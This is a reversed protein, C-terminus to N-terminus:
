VDDSLEYSYHGFKRTRVASPCSWFDVEPYSDVKVYFFVLFEELLRQLQRLFQWISSTSIIDLVGRRSDVEPDFYVNVYFIFYVKGSAETSTQGASVARATDDGAFGTLCLGSCVDAVLVAEADRFLQGESGYRSHHRAGQAKRRTFFRPRRWPPVQSDARGACCPCRGGFVSGSSRFRLSGSFLSSWPSSSRRFSLSHRRIDISQLQPVVVTHQVMSGRVQRQVVRACRGQRLVAGPSHLVSHTGTEAACCSHGCTASSSFSLASEVAPVQRELACPRGCRPLPAKPLKKKSRKKRKRKVSRSSSAAGALPGRQQLQSTEQQTRRREEEEEEEKKRALNMKLLYRLTRGDIAKASSDALLKPGWWILPPRAAVYGVTAAPGQPESVEALPEPRTGPLPRKQARIGDHMEHVEGERNGSDETGTPRRVVGGGRQASHHLATAVAAAISVQEHRWWSRMRRQRRRQAAGSSHQGSPDMEVPSAVFCHARKLYVGPPPPPPHHTPTTTTTTSRVKHIHSTDTWAVFRM